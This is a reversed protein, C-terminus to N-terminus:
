WTPTMASLGCVLLRTTPTPTLTWFPAFDANIGLSRMECGLVQGQSYALAQNGTAGLAMNGPFITAPAGVRSVM